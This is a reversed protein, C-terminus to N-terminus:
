HRWQAKHRLKSGRRAALLDRNLNKARQHPAALRRWADGLWRRAAALLKTESSTRALPAPKSDSLSAAHHAYMVSINAASAKM